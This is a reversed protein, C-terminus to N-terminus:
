VGFKGGGWGRTSKSRSIHREPNVFRSIMANVGILALFLMSMHRLFQKRDMNKGFLGSIEDRM